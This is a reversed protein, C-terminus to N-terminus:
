IKVEVIRTVAKYQGPNRPTPKENFDIVKYFGAKSPLFYGKDSIFENNWKWKDQSYTLFGGEFFIATAIPLDRNLSYETPATYIYPQFKARLKPCNEFVTESNAWGGASRKTGLGCGEPVKVSVLNKCDKFACDGIRKTQPSIRVFEVDSGEFCHDPIETIHDPIWVFKVGKADKNRFAIGMLENIDAPIIVGTNGKDKERIYRVLKKETISFM